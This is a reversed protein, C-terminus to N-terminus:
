WAACDAVLSDCANKRWRHPAWRLERRPFESHGPYKMARQLGVALYGGKQWQDGFEARTLTGDDLIVRILKMQLGAHHAPRSKVKGTFAIVLGQSRKRLYGHPCEGSGGSLRM